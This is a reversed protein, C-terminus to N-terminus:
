ARAEKKLRIEERLKYIKQNEERLVENQMSQEDIYNRQADELTQIDKMLEKSKKRLEEVRGKLSSLTERTKKELDGNLVKRFREHVNDVKEM